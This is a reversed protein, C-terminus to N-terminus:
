LFVNGFNASVFLKNTGAVSQCDYKDDDQEIIVRVRKERQNEDDEYQFKMAVPDPETPNELM